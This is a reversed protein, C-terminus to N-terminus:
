QKGRERRPRTVGGPRGLAMGLGGSGEVPVDPRGLRADCVFDVIWPSKQPNVRM